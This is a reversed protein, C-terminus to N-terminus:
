SRTCGSIIRSPSRPWRRTKRASRERRGQGRDVPAARREVATGADPARHLHGRHDSRRGEGRVGRRAQLARAGQDGDGRLAETGLEGCRCHQRDGAAKRDDGLRRRDRRDDAAERGCHLRRYPVERGRRLQIGLEAQRKHDTSEIEEGLELQPFSRACGRM